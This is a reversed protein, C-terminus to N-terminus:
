ETHVTYNTYVQEPRLELDALRDRQEEVPPKNQLLLPVVPGGDAGEGDLAHAQAEEVDSLAVCFCWVCVCESVRVCMWM